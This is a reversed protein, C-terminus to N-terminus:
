EVRSSQSLFYLTAIFAIFANILVTYIVVNIEKLVYRTAYRHTYVIVHNMDVYFLHSFYAVVPVLTLFLFLRIIPPFEYISRKAWAVASLFLSFVYVSFFVGLKKSLHLFRDDIDVGSKHLAESLTFREHINLQNVLRETDNMYLLYGPEVFPHIYYLNKKAEAIENYGEENKLRIWNEIWKGYRARFVEIKSDRERYRAINYFYFVGRYPIIREVTNIFGKEDIFAINEMSPLWEISAAEQSTFDIKKLEKEASKKYLDLDRLQPYKKYLASFISYAEYYEKERLHNLAKEKDQIFSKTEAEQKSLQGILTDVKRKCVEYLERIERNDEHLSVARELYFLAAYYNGKEYEIKGREYYGGFEVSQPEKEEEVREETVFPQASIQKLAHVYMDNAKRNNEDIEFYYELVPLLREYQGKGYLEQSYSFAKKAVEYSYQIHNLDKHLNPIIVFEAAVVLMLFLSLLIYSPVAVDKYTLTGRQFPSLTFLFSFCVVYVLIIFVPLYTFTHILADRLRIASTLSKLSSYEPTLSRTGFFYFGIFGLVFVIVLSVLLM